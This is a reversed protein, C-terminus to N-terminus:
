ASSPMRSTSLDRPSPSTYLLCHLNTTTTQTKLSILEANISAIDVSHQSVQGQINALNATVGDVKSNLIRVNADNKDLKPDFYNKIQSFLDGEPPKDSSSFSGSEGKSNTAM